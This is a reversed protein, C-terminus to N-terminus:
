QWVKKLCCNEVGARWRNNFTGCFPFEIPSGHEILNCCSKMGCNTRFQNFGACAAFCTNYQTQECRIHAACCAFPNQILPPVGRTSCATGSYTQKWCKAAAPSCFAPNAYCKYLCSNICDTWASCPNNISIIYDCVTRSVFCFCQAGWNTGGFLSANWCYDNTRGKCPPGPPVPLPSGVPPPLPTLTFAPFSSSRLGSPDTALVPNNGVNRYLNVGDEYGRPDKTTWRATEMDYHRRRIHFNSFKKSTQRYGQTGVWGFAPDAGTGTKALLAGFPKYRYTNIIQASQNMTATVSGLADTLYDTRVGSTTEGIIEGNMTHYNTVPM